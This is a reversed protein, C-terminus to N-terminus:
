RTTMKEIYCYVINESVTFKISLGSKALLLEQLYM